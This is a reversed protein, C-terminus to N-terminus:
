ALTGGRQDLWFKAIRLDEPRTIKINSVSGDILRVPCSTYKEVLEADDTCSTDRALVAKEHAEKLTKLGFGQPTQVAYLDERPVTRVAYASMAGKGSQKVTDTVPLALVAGEEESVAELVAQIYEPEILARAADHVLVKGADEPVHGLARCVSEQRTKGGPVLTIKSVEEAELFRELLLRARDMDEEPLAIFIGAISRLSLFSKAARIFVPVGDLLLFQKKEGKEHGMRSGRGGAALICFDKM